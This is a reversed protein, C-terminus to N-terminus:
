KILFGNGAFYLCAGARKGPPLDLKHLGLFPLPVKARRLLM